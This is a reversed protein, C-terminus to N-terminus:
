DEKQPVLSKLFKDIDDINKEWKGDKFVVPMNITKDTFGNEVLMKWMIKTNAKKSHVDIERFPINNEVLFNIVHSCIDCSKRTFLVLGNRLEEESIDAHAEEKLTIDVREKPKFNPPYVPSYSYSIKYEFDEEPNRTITAIENKQLNAIKFKLPLLKNCTFGKGEINFEVELLERTYSKAFFTISNGKAVEKIELKDKQASLVCSTMLFLLIFIKM